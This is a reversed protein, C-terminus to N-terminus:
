ENEIVELPEGRYRPLGVNGRWKVPKVRRMEGIHWGFPWRSIDDGWKTHLSRHCECRACDPEGCRQIYAVAVICAEDECVGGMGGGIHHKCRAYHLAICLPELPGTSSRFEVTKKGALIRDLHVRRITLVREPTTTSM